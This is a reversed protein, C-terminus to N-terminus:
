NLTLKCIGKWIRPEKISHVTWVSSSVLNIASRHVSLTFLKKKKATQTEFSRDHDRHSCKGLPSQSCLQWNGRGPNRRHALCLGTLEM